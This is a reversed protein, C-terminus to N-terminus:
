NKKRKSSSTRFLNIRPNIRPDMLIAHQKLGGRRSPQQCSCVCLCVRAHVCVRENEREWVCVCVYVCVCVPRAASLTAWIQHHFPKEEGRPLLWVCPRHRQHGWRRRRDKRHSCVKERVCVCAHLCVYQCMLTRCTPARRQSLTDLFWMLRRAADIYISQTKDSVHLCTVGLALTTYSLLRWIIKLYQCFLGTTYPEKQLLAIEKLSITM